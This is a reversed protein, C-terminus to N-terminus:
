PIRRTEVDVIGHSGEHGEDKKGIPSWIAMHEAVNRQEKTKM